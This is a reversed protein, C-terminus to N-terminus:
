SLVGAAAQMWSTSYASSKAMIASVRSSVSTIGTKSYPGSVQFRNLRSRLFSLCNWMLHRRSMRLTVKHSLIRFPVMRSIVPSSDISSCNRCLLSCYNPCTQLIGARRGWLCSTCFLGLPFFRGGSPAGRAMTAFVRSSICCMTLMRSLVQVRRLLGLPFFRGGSPAGRRQHSRTLLSRLPMLFQVSAIWSRVSHLATM